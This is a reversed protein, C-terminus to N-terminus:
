LNLFGTNKNFKLKIKKSDNKLSKQAAELLIVLNVADQINILPTKLGNTSKLFEDFVERLPEKNPIHPITINGHRLTFFHKLFSGDNNNTQVGRDFLKVKGDNETDNFTAMKKNGVLVLTRTKVPDAWSVRLNFLTNDEFELTLFAVDEIKPNLFARGAASISTPQMSLLHTITYIFHTSIDWLASVDNRIPGLATYDGYGYYIKGLTGKKILEKIKQIGPNFIFTHDVMLTKGTKKAIRTLELAHKVSSTLPKEVLVNKDYQLIKKAVEFHSAAPVTVIISDLMNDKLLDKLNTTTKVYPYLRRILELKQSSLDCCWSLNVKEHEHAIRAFNPGWQGIGVIAVNKQKIM